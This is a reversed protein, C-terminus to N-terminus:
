RRFWGANFLGEPDLETRLAQLRDYSAGYLKRRVTHAMTSVGHLYPRGGLEICRDTLAECEGIAAELSTPDSEPVMHYLGCGFSYTGPAGATPALIGTDAMGNAAASSPRRIMLVYISPLYKYGPHGSDVKQRIEELFTRFNEFELVYDAWVKRTRTFQSLWADVDRADSFCARRQVPGASEANLSPLKPLAADEAQAKSAFYYRRRLFALGGQHCTAMLEMPADAFGSGIPLSQVDGLVSMLDRWNRTTSVYVRSYPALPQTLLRVREIVGVSGLGALAFRFLEPNENQSAEVPTGDPLILRLSAVNDVQAGWRVSRVGYGGVSVTGGVSLSLTDTLVRAAVLRDNLETEVADWRARAEVDAIGDGSLDRVAVAPAVNVLLIGGRAVTLGNSSHGAGRVTVPIGNRRCFALVTRVDDECRAEVVAAPAGSRYGGYDTHYASGVPPLLVRGSVADALNAISGSSM